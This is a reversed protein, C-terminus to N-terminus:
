CHEDLVNGLLRRILPQFAWRHRHPFLSRRAEGLPVADRDFLELFPVAGEANLNRAAGDCVDKGLL